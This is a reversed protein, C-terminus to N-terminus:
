ASPTSRGAAVVEVTHGLHAPKAAAVLADLRAADVDAARQVTVRVHLSRTPSGPLAGGSTASWATGGGEGIEVEGGTGTTVCAGFAAATESHFNSAPYALPMDWTEASAGTAVATAALAVLLTKTM